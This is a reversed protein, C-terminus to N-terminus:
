GETTLGSTAPDGDTGTPATPEEPTPPPPQPAAHLQDVLANLADPLGPTLGYDGLDIPFMRGDAIAPIEFLPSTPDRM